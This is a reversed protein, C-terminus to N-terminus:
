FSIKPCCPCSSSTTKGGNAETWPGQEREQHTESLVRFRAGGNNGTCVGRRRRLLMIVGKLVVNDRISALVCTSHDGRWGGERGGEEDGTLVGLLWQFM